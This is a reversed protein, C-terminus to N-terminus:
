YQNADLGGLEKGFAEFNWQNIDKIPFDPYESMLKVWKKHGEVAHEKDPYQEVIVWIGELLAREIGTEWLNTDPPFSTDITINDLKDTIQELPGTYGLALAGLFSGLGEFPNDFRQPKM